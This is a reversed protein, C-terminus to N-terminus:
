TNLLKSFWKDIYGFVKNKITSSKKWKFNVILANLFSTKHCGRYFGKKFM